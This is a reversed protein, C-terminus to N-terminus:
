SYHAPYRDHQYWICTCIALPIDELLAPLVKTLFHGYRNGTVTGETFYSGIVQDEIIGCWMNGHWQHLWHPSDAACYHMNRMNVHGHNTLTEKDTFLIRQLFFRNEEYRMLLLRHFEVCHGCHRQDLQQHLSAHYPHFRNTQLIRIISSQSIGSGSAVERFSFLPNYAVTYSPSLATPTPLSLTVAPSNTAQQRCDGTSRLGTSQLPSARGVAQGQWGRSDRLRGGEGWREGPTLRLTVGSSNRTCSGQRCGSELVRQKEAEYVLKTTSGSRRRSELRQGRSPLESGVESLSNSTPWRRRSVVAVREVKEREGCGVVGASARHAM